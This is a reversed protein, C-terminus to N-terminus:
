NNLLIVDEVVQLHALIVFTMKQLFVSLSNELLVPIDLIETLNNVCVITQKELNHNENKTPICHM